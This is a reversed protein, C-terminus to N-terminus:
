KSVLSPNKAAKAAAILKGFTETKADGARVTVRVEETVPQGDVTVVAKLDYFYTGAPLNPTHFNRTTGTGTVKEGDVFLVADAPLEITLRAPVAAPKTAQYERSGTLEPNAPPPMPPVGSGGPTGSSITPNHFDSGYYYPGVVGTGYCGGMSYGQPFTPMGAFNYGFSAANVGPSNGLYYVGGPASSGYGAGGPVSGVYYGTGAGGGFGYGLCSSGVCSGGCCGTGHCTTSSVPYGGCCGGCSFRAAVRARLGPFLPFLHAHGGGCCGVPAAYGCCGSAVVGSCSGGHCGVGWHFSPADGGGAVASMLLLSYM